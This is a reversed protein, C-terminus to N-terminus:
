ISLSVGHVPWKAFMQPRFAQIDTGGRLLSKRFLFTFMERRAMEPAVARLGNDTRVVLRNV